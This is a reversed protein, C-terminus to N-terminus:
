LTEEPNLPWYQNCYTLYLLNRSAVLSPLFLEYSSNSNPPVQVPNLFPSSPAVQFEASAMTFDQLQSQIVEQM